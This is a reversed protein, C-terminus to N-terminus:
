SEFSLESWGGDVRHFGRLTVPRVCNRVIRSSRRVDRSRLGGDARRRREAVYLHRPWVKTASIQHVRVHDSDALVLDLVGLEVVNDLCTNVKGAVM